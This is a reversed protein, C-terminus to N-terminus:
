IFLVSREIRQNRAKSLRTAEASLSRWLPSADKPNLKKEKLFEHFGCMHGVRPAGQPTTVMTKECLTKSGLLRCCSSRPIMKWFLLIGLAKTTRVCIGNYKM